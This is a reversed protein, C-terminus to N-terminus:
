IIEPQVLEKHMNRNLTSRVNGVRISPHFQGLITATKVSVLDLSAKGIAIHTPNCSAALIEKFDKTFDLAENSRKM